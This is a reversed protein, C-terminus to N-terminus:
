EGIGHHVPLASMWHLTAIANHSVKKQMLTQANESIELVMAFPCSCFTEIQNKKLIDQFFEHNSKIDSLFRELSNNM